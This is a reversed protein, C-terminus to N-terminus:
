CEWPDECLENATCISLQCITLAAPAPQTQCDVPVNGTRSISFMVVTVGMQYGSLGEWVGACIHLSTRM